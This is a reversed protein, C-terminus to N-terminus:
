HLSYTLQFNIGYDDNSASTTLPQSDYAYYFKFGVKFDDSWVSIKPNLNFVARYRSDTIYPLFDINADIWIKPSTFKYVKWVLAFKGALDETTGSDDYPTEQTLNLGAGVYLRNWSSYFINRIGLGNIGIRLKTGLETNQSGGVSVVISWYNKILREWSLSLDSKSSNLSDSQYTNNTDWIISTSTKERRYNLNGSFDLTAIDSGKSYNGGISFDGSVRLWFSNKIPYISVINEIKVLLRDSDRVVYVSRKETSAQFSGLYVLGSKMKIEFQKNSIITNIKIEEFSITGMGDMKWTAVGYILKKLEGKMINGNVHVITDTKQAFLSTQPTM